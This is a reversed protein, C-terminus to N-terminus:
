SYAQAASCEAHETPNSLALIVPRENIESMAEVVQKTFAGGVTSVGIIATPKISTIAAVFDRTPAHPHAYPKQFDVLDTRSPELLGNIDFTHVRSRADKLTMGVSEEETFTQRASLDRSHGALLLYVSRRVSM